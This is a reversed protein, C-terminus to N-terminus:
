RLAPSRPPSPLPARSHRRNRGARTTAVYRCRGALPGRRRQRQQDGLRPRRHGPPRQEGAGGAPAGSRRRRHRRRLDCRYRGATSYRPRDRGRSRRAGGGSVVDVVTPEHQEPRRSRPRDRRRARGADGGTVAAARRPRDLDGDDAAAGDRAPRADGDADRKSPRDHDTRGVGHGAPVHTRAVGRARRGVAAALARWARRGEPSELGPGGAARWMAEVADLEVTSPVDDHNTISVADPVVRVRLRWRGSQRRPAVFRTELRVPLLVGIEPASM